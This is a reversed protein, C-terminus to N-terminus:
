SSEAKRKRKLDRQATATQRADVSTRIRDILEVVEDSIGALPKPQPYGINGFETLWGQILTIETQRLAYRLHDVTEIGEMIVRPRICYGKTAGIVMGVITDRNPDMQVVLHQIKIFTFHVGAIQEIRLDAADDHVLPTGALKAGAAADLRIYNKIPERESLEFRLRHILFHSFPDTFSRVVIQELKAMYVDNLLSSSDMNIFICADQDRLISYENQCLRAAEELAWVDWALIDAESTSQDYLQRPFQRTRRNRALLEYGFLKVIPRVQIIPQFYLTCKRLGQQLTELSLRTM